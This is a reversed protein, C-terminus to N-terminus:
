TSTRGRAPSASQAGSLLLFARAAPTLDVARHVISGSLFEETSLDHVALGSQKALDRWAEAIVAIGTGNLVMPLIAERHETEVVAITSRNAAIVQDAVRRMGTGPQGIILRQGELQDYTLPGQAPLGAHKSSIVIFSQRLLPHVVLDGSDVTDTVAMIGLDVGGARVLSMVDQPTGAARISTQIMPYRSVYRDIIAPLPDVAQSPMSALVLRGTRLGNVADVHARSLEMWHTVQRAPAILADGAPTLQLRRGTRTFLEAGLDRQLSRLAQSVSPQAVFLKEAAAGVGGEDVVALFYELQRVDM